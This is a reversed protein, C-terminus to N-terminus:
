ARWAARSSPAAAFADAPATECTRIASTTFMARASSDNLAAPTQVMPRAESPAVVEYSAISKLSGLASTSPASPV